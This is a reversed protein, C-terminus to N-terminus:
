LDSSSFLGEVKEVAADLCRSITPGQSICVCVCKYYLSLVPLGISKWRFVHDFNSHGVNFLKESLGLRPKVYEHASEGRSLYATVGHALVDLDGMVLPPKIV